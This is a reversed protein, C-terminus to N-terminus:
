WSMMASLKMFFIDVGSGVKDKGSVKGMASYWDNEVPGVAGRLTEFRAREDDGSSRSSYVSLVLLRNSCNENCDLGLKWVPSLKFSRSDPRRRLLRRRDPGLIM